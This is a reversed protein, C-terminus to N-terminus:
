WLVKSVIIEGGDEIVLMGGQKTWGEGLLPGLVMGRVGKCWFCM